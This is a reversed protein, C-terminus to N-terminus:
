SIRRTSEGAGCDFLVTDPVVIEARGNIGLLTKVHQVVNLQKNSTSAWFDDRVVELAERAQERQANVVMVSSKRGFPLNTLVLDFREGPDCRM